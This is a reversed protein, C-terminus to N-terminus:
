LFKGLVYGFLGSLVIGIIVYIRASKKQNELDTLIEKIGKKVEPDTGKSTWIGM